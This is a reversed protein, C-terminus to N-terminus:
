ERFIVKNRGNEKAEYLAGDAKAIIDQREHVGECPYTAVGQSVTVRLGQETGMFTTDEVSRRIREATQYAEPGNTEPLLVAFEEGGYRAVIDMSRLCSKILVALGKLIEDGCLHGYTDNVKKFHDIDLMILSFITNYRDSRKYEKEFLEQFFRHNYIKTLGDTIALQRAAEYLRANDIVITVQNQVLGLIVGAERVFSPSQHQFLALMGIVKKQATLPIQASSYPKEAKGSPEELNGENYVSIGIRDPNSGAEWGYECALEFVKSKIEDLEDFATPRNLHVVMDEEEFMLVVGVANGVVRAMIELIAGVTERYDQSASALSGLENLITSEFLKSDLLDIVRSFVGAEELVQRPIAKTRDTTRRAAGAEIQERIVELLQDPKFGKTVYADAGTKMGWFMDSQQDRGTLMIVPIDRTIEDDKLLRCVQYGNIKPMEVDLIVLDPEEAYAKNIAELGDWAVRVDYDADELIASTIKVVLKNDDALLIKGQPM